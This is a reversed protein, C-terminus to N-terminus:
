TRKPMLAKAHKPIKETGTQVRRGPKQEDHDEKRSYQRRSQKVDKEYEARTLTGKRLSINYRAWESVAQQFDGIGKYNKLADIVNEKGSLRRIHAFFIGMEAVTFLDLLRETSSGVRVLRDLESKVAEGAAIKLVEELKDAASKRSWPPPAVCLLLDFRNARTIAPDLNQKHNTAMLFVVGAKDWLDALKPLMSTTLLQRTVDLSQGIQDPDGERTQALADMEDFFVVTKRLDMLDQFVEDVQAHVQELGRGLFHSPTIVVIPWELYAALSKALNTKSTGPPGFFLVSRPVGLKFDNKKEAAVANAIVEDRLVTVLTTPPEAPFELDVDILKSLNEKSKVAALRDKGYKRLVLEDLLDSVRHHLQDLFMHVSATAWAEPEGRALKRVEGGSNWGRFDNQSDTVYHLLHSECWSLSRRFHSLLKRTRLLTPGFEALIAELFEFTFCYDAAGGGRPFHFLPFYKHWIGSRPQEILVREVAFTLEVDTPLTRSVGALEARTSCLRRIRKILCAAMALEPPDMLADNGASVYVLQRRFEQTAWASISPIHNDVVVGSNISGDIFWYVITSKAPYKSVAFSDGGLALKLNVIDKITKGAVTPDEKKEGEENETLYPPHPLSAVEPADLVRSGVIFGATRIVLAATFPNGDPLGSSDWKTSVIRRFLDAIDVKAGQPVGTKKSALEKHAGTQLLAMLATCTSGVSIDTDAPYPTSSPLTKFSDDGQQFGRLHERVSGNLRLADRRIARLEEILMPQEDGGGEAASVSEGNEIEASILQSLEGKFM